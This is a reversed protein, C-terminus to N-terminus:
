TATRPEVRETLPRAFSVALLAAALLAAALPLYALLHTVLVGSVAEEVPRPGALLRRLLREDSASLDEVFRVLVAERDQDSEMVQRMRRATLGHSDTVPTYVYARGQKSRSVVGKDHLRTLVTVVTSYALAAGLQERVAAPTLGAHAQQLLGLVEAELAGMARRGGDVPHGSNV